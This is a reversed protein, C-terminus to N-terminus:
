VAVPYRSLDALFAHIAEDVTPLPIASKIFIGANALQPLNRMATRVEEADESSQVTQRITMQALLNGLKTRYAIEINFAM